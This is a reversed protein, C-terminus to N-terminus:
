VGPRLYMNFIATLKTFDHLFHYAFPGLMTNCFERSINNVAFLEM